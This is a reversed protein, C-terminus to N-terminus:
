AGVPRPWRSRHCCVFCLRMGDPRLCVRVRREDSVRVGCRQCRTTSLFTHVHERLDACLDFPPPARATSWGFFVLM